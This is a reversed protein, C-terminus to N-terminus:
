MIDKMSEILPKMEKWSGRLAQYTKRLADVVEKGEKETIILPPMIQLVRPFNDAFVAIVGYRSLQASALPGLVDDVFEIGMMLGKQRVSKQLDPYEEGLKRLEEAFFEAMKNVHELFGPKTIEDLVASLVVCGIETGGGTSIHIFPNKRLFEAVHERVCVVTIPYMAGSTGKGLVVIDPVVGWHEYAWLKGTRGLGTQVEDDIWLVGKKDCLERLRPFFDDPPIVIGGTAQITEFICAATDDDMAEEVAKIDGYPVHKFGPILPEFKQRWKPDGASLAFGTLGHYAGYSTIINKRGTYGRAIKIALDVAEGGSVCFIAHQIDGPMLNVLKEALEVRYRSMLLHDSMDLELEDIAKKLARITAPPRHGLNFVGGSSRVDIFRRKGALDWVYCGERKGPIFDWGLLQYAKQRGPIVYRDFKEMLEKELQSLDEERGEKGSEKGSVKEKESVM